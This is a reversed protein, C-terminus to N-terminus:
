IEDITESSLRGESRLSECCLGQKWPVQGIWMDSLKRPMLLLPQWQKSPTFLTLRVENYGRILRRPRNFTYTEPLSETCAFCLPTPRRTISGRWVTATVLYHWILESFDSQSPSHVFWVGAENPESSTPPTLRIILAEAEQTFLLKPEKTSSLHKKILKAVTKFGRADNKQNRQVYRVCLLSVSVSAM